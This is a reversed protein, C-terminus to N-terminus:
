PMTYNRIESKCIWMMMCQDKHVWSPAAIATQKIIEFLIYVVKVLTAEPNSNRFNGKM